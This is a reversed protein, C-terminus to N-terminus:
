ANSLHNSEAPLKLFDHLSIRGVSVVGIILKLEKIIEELM